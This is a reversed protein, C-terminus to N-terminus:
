ERSLYEHLYHCAQQIDRKQVKKQKRWGCLLIFTNIPRDFYVAIRWKLGVNRLEYLDKDNGSINDLMDTSLLALGNEALKRVKADINARINVPQVDRWEKIPSSDNPRVYYIVKYLM